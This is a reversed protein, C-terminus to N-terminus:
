FNIEKEVILCKSENFNGIVKLLSNIGDTVQLLISDEDTKVGSNGSPNYRVM